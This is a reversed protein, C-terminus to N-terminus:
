GLLVRTILHYLKAEAAAEFGDVVDGVNQLAEIVVFLKDDGAKGTAQLGVDALM